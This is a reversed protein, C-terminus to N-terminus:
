LNLMLVFADNCKKNCGHPKGVMAGIKIAWLYCVNSILGVCYWLFYPHSQELLDNIKMSTPLIDLFVSLISECLLKIIVQLLLCPCM